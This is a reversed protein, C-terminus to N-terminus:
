DKADEGPSPTKDIRQSDSTFSHEVKGENKVELTM